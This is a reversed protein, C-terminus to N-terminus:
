LPAAPQAQSLGMSFPRPPDDPTAPYV